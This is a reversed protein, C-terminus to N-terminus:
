TCIQFLICYCAQSGHAHIICILYYRRLTCVHINCNFICLWSHKKVKNASVSDKHDWPGTVRSKQFDCKIRGLYEVKLCKRTHEALSSIREACAWGAIFNTWSSSIGSIFILFCSKSNTFNRLPALRFRQLKRWPLSLRLSSCPFDSPDECLTCRSGHPVPCCCYSKM